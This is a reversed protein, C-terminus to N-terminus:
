WITAGHKFTLTGSGPKAHGAHRGRGARLHRRFRGAYRRCHRQRDAHRWQERQHPKSSAISGSVDLTGADINTAGTYTNTNSLVLTGAGDMEVTGPSTGDSIVGSITQTTGAPPTFTPDGSIQINNAITFDGTDLFSLTTGAAMSLTGSGLASNNGIVLTGQDLATGFSYTNTGALTFAGTGTKALRVEHNGDEIVGSFTTSTNDSGVTLTNAVTDGNTVIGGAGSVDSLSGISLFQGNIDLTAGNAVSVRGTGFATSSGAFLTGTDM